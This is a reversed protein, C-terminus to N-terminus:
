TEQRKFVNSRRTVDSHTVAINSPAYLRKCPVAVQHHFVGLDEPRQEGDVHVGNQFELRRVRPVAEREELVEVVIKAHVTIILSLASDRPKLLSLPSAITTNIHSFM